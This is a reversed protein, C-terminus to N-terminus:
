SEGALAAVVDRLLVADFGARVEIEANGIRVLVSHECRRGTPALEVFTPAAEAAIAAKSAARIWRYATVETIGLKAASVAVSERRTKVQRVFEDREAQTYIRRM